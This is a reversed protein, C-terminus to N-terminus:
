WSQHPRRDAYRSGRLDAKSSHPSRDARPSTLLDAVDVELAVALSYINLLAVNREGREVSGIYTRHLRTHDALAEQSLARNERYGVCGIAM